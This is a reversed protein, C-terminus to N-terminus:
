DVIRSWDEQSPFAEDNEGFMLAGSYTAIESSRLGEFSGKAPDAANAAVIARIEALPRDPSTWRNLDRRMARTAKRSYGSGNILYSAM